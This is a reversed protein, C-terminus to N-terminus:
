ITIKRKFWNWTPSFLKRLLYRRMFVSFLRGGERKHVKRMEPWCRDFGTTSKSHQHMRFSAWLKPKYRIETVKSFRVWLDYDMAFYLSTDLPGVQRWLEARWFAAPQPIDSYGQMLRRYNTQRANYQGIVQDSENIFDIDGYVMGILPNELLFSVAEKVAGPHYVDDSNLWALFKGRAIQFGKNIADAQGQDAESIWASLDNEFKRIIELSGDTSGGDIVIYELNPYKQNLVSQITKELFQSQNYSPTVISVLPSKMM